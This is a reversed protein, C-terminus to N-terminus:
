QGDGTVAWFYLASFKYSPGISSWYAVVMLFQSGSPGRMNYTDFIIGAESLPRNKAKPHTNAPLTAVPIFTRIM